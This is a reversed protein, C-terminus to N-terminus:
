FSLKGTFSPIKTDKIIKMVKLRESQTRDYSEDARYSTPNPGDKKKWKNIIAEKEKDSEKRMRPIPSRDKIVDLKVPNYFAPL